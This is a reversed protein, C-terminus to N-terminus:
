CDNVFQLIIKAGKGRNYFNPVIEADGFADRRLFPSTREKKDQFQISPFAELLLGAAFAAGCIAVM